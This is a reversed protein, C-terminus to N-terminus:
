TKVGLVWAVILILLTGGVWYLAKERNVRKQSRENAARVAHDRAVDRHDREAM